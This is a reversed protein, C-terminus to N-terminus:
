LILVHHTFKRETVSNGFIDHVFLFILINIINLIHPFFVETEFECLEINTFLHMVNVVFIVKNKNLFTKFIYKVRPLGITLFRLM